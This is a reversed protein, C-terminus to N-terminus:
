RGERKWRKYCDMIKGYLEVGDHNLIFDNSVEFCYRRFVEFNIKEDGTLKLLIEPNFKKLVQEEVLLDEFIKALKRIQKGENSFQMYLATIPSQMANIPKIKSEDIIKNMYEREYPKIKFATVVVPQLKIPITKMVVLLQGALNTKVHKVQVFLKSHGVFSCILTDAESAYISFKGAEDSMAGNGTTKNIIYVYPMLTTSDGEVVKGSWPLSQASFCFTKLVLGGILTLRKLAM